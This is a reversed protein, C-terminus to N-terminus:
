LMLILPNIAATIGLEEALCCVSSFNKLRIHRQLPYTFKWSSSIKSYQTACQVYRKKQLLSKNGSSKTNDKPMPYKSFLLMLIPRQFESWLWDHQSFRYLFSNIILLSTLLTVLSQNKGTIKCSSQNWIESPNHVQMTIKRSFKECSKESVM